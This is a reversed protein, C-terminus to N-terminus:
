RVAATDKLKENPVCRKRGERERERRETERLM